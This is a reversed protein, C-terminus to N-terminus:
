REVVSKGSESDFAIRYDPKVGLERIVGDRAIVITQGSMGCIFQFCPFLLTMDLNDLLSNVVLPLDLSFLERLAQNIALFLIIQKGMAHFYANINRGNPEDTIDLRGERSVNARLRGFRSGLLAMMNRTLYGEFEHRRTLFVQSSSIVSALAGSAGGHCHCLTEIDLFILWTPIGEEAISAGMAVGQFERRLTKVIAEKGPADGRGIVVVGDSVDLSQESGFPDVGSVDIHKFRYM